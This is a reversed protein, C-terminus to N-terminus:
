LSKNENSNQLQKHLEESLEPYVLEFKELVGKFGKNHWDIIKPILDSNDLPVFDPRNPFRYLQLEGQEALETIKQLVNDIHEEAIIDEDFESVVEASWGTKKSQFNDGKLTYLSGSLNFIEDFMGAKREVLIIPSDETGRGSLSYNFDSGGNSIFITAVAKSPTAYVWEQQHTSSRKYLKKLGQIKSGHYVYNM